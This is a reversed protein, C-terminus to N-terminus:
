KTKEKLNAFVMNFIGGVFIVLCYFLGSSGLAHHTRQEVQLEELYTSTKISAILTSFATILLISVLLSVIGLIVLTTKIKKNDKKILTIISFTLVLLGFLLLIVFVYWYQSFLYQPVYDLEVHKLTYARVNVESIFNPTLLLFISLVNILITLAGVIIRKM